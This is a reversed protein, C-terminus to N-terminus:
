VISCGEHDEDTLGDEWRVHSNWDGMLSTRLPAELASTQDAQPDQFMEQLCHEDCIAM